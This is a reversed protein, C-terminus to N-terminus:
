ARPGTEIGRNRDLWKKVLAGLAILGLVIFKKGSVVAILILKWFKALLGIKVLKAAGLGAGAAVLGTLGYEAVKDKSSDFDAYRAGSKFHTGTLLTKAEPKYAALKSPDTVLTLSVYGHRGLVRTNHNVSKGSPDSVILAWVLHHEGKDYHPPDAWGDLTLATFGREKREENAADNGERLDSLLDDADIADDDKVYGEALYELVVFWDTGQDASAVLGLVNENHLNGNAELVKSAPEKPLFAHRESLSLQIEHGLDLETPGKRWPSPTPAASTAPEPTVPDGSAAPPAPEGQTTDRAARAHTADLASLALAVVVLGSKIAVSSKM